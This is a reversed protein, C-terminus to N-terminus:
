KFVKEFHKSINFRSVTQGKSPFDLLEQGFETLCADWLELFVLYLPTSIM